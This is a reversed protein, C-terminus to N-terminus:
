KEKKHKKIAETIHVFFRGIAAPGAAKRFMEAANEVNSALAKARDTIENVKNLIKIVKVAIIISLLLFLALFSALIIVLITEANEM